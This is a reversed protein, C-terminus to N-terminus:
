VPKHISFLYDIVMLKIRGVYIDAPTDPRAYAPDEPNAGTEQQREEGVPFSRRTFGALWARVGV